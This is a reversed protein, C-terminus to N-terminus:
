SSQETRNPETRNQETTGARSQEVRSQVARSQEARKQEARSEEERGQDERGVRSQLGPETLLHPAEDWRMRGWGVGVLISCGEGSSRIGSSQERRCPQRVSIRRTEDVREPHEIARDRRALSDEERGPNALPLHDLRKQGYLSLLAPCLCQQPSCRTRLENRPPNQPPCPFPLSLSLSLSLDRTTLSARRSPPDAAEWAVWKNREVAPRFECGSGELLYSLHRSITSAGSLFTTSICSTTM